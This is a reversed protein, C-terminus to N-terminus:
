IMCLKSAFSKVKWICPVGYFQNSTTWIPNVEAFLDLVIMKGIPVSHLLAQMLWVADDDGGQMGKFILAALSSIYEPDDTPPTNEDFTDNCCLSVIHIAGLTELVPPPGGTSHQQAAEVVQAVISPLLTSVAQNVAALISPDVEGENADPHSPEPGGASTRNRRSAVRQSRRAM